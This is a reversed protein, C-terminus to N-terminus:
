QNHSKAWEHAADWADSFSMGGREFEKRKAVRAASEDVFANPTEDRKQNLSKKRRFYVSRSVGFADMGDKVTHVDLWDCAESVTMTALPSGDPLEIPRRGACRTALVEAKGPRWSVYLYGRIKTDDLNAFLLENDFITLSAKIGLKACDNNFREIDKLVEDRKDQPVLVPLSFHDDALTDIDHKSM